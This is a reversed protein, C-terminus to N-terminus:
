NYKLRVGVILDNPTNTADGLVKIGVHDGVALSSLISSIDHEYLINSTEVTDQDTLSESHLGHNEGIAGYDASYNLRKTATTRSIRVAVAETISSFDDPVYFSIRATDNTGDIIAGPFDNHSAPFDVGETVPVFFEKTAAGAGGLLNAVTIRKSEDSAPESIDRIYVEDGDAPTTALETLASLKTDAM